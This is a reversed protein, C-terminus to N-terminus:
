LEHRESSGIVYAVRAHLRDQKLDWLLPDRVPGNPFSTTSSSPAEDNNVTTRVLKRPQDDPCGM